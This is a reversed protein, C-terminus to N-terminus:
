TLNATGPTGGCNMFGLDSSLPANTKDLVDDPLIIEAKLFARLNM